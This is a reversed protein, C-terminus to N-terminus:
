MTYYVYYEHNDELGSSRKEKVYDVVIATTSQCWNAFDVSSKHSSYGFHMLAVWSILLMILTILIVINSITDTNRM